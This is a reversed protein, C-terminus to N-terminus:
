MISIAALMLIIVVWFRWDLHARKWFPHSSHSEEQNKLRNHHASM